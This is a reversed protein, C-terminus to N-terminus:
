LLALQLNEQAAPAAAPAPGGQRRLEAEVARLVERHVIPPRPCWYGQDDVFRGEVSCWIANCDLMKRQANQKIFRILHPMEESFREVRWAADSQGARGQFLLPGACDRRKLGLAKAEQWQAERQDVRQAKQQDIAEEAAKHFGRWWAAVLDEAPIDAFLREGQEDVGISAQYAEHFLARLPAELEPRLRGHRDCPTPGQKGHAQRGLAEAANMWDQYNM